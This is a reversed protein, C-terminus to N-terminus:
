FIILKVKTNAANCKLFISTRTSAQSGDYVIAANSIGAVMYGKPVYDLGHEIKLDANATVFVIDHIKSRINEEFDIRGNLEAVIDSISKSSFRRLNEFDETNSCSLPVKIRGM